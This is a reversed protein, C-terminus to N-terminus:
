IHDPTVHAHRPIMLVRLEAGSIELEAGSIELEAGSIELEAGSIEPAFVAGSIEYM